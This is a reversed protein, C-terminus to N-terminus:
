GCAFSYRIACIMTSVQALVIVVPGAKKVELEFKNQLYGTVWTINTSTWQQVVTWRKDFLRTRHIYMFNDLMDKFSM